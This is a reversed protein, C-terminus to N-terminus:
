IYTYYIIIIIGFYRKFQNIAQSRSIYKEYITYDNNNNDNNNNNQNRNKILNNALIYQFQQYLNDFHRPVASFANPSFLM